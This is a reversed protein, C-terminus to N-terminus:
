LRKKLERNLATDKVLVITECKNFRAFERLSKVVGDYLNDDGVHEPELMLNQILLQKNKRDAKPDIRGVFRDGWLIPMSFYGYKRKAAPLYIEAQYSFGFFQELRKRQIILNDFPSVFVARKRPVRNPINDLWAATSFYTRGDILVPLIRGEQQLAQIAKEVAPKWGKRLYAIESAMALGHAQLARMVLDKAFEFRTIQASLYEGPIAKEALDFQKQIGDRAVIGLKGMMFLEHLAQKMVGISWVGKKKGGDVFDRAFLAGERQIRTLVADMVTLDRKFWHKPKQIIETMMVKCSPYASMPLYAAAHSWYEFVQQERQLSELDQPDYEKCRNWLVHHHARCIVSIPDIQVYGLREFAQLVGQMGGPFMRKGWLGQAVLALRRAQLNTLTHIM